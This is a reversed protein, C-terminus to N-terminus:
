IGRVNLQQSKRYQISVLFDARNLQSIKFILRSIRYISANANENVLLGFRSKVM